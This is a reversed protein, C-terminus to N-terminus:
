IARVQARINRRTIMSAIGHGVAEGVTRAEDETPVLGSFNVNISGPGFTVSPGILDQLKSLPAVVEDQGGEGINALIGGPRAKVLAGGALRPIRPLDGPLFKDVEAIGVNIKDIARNLFGKIASVIDGAVDGIFNGVARFGNMFSKILNLGAQLFVPGLAVIRDPVSRIFEWIENFGNVVVAKAFALAETFINGVKPGTSSLAEVIRDPLSLLFNVIQNPLETIVFLIAGIATGLAILVADGLQRFIDAIQNPLGLLFVVLEGFKAPIEALWGGLAKVFAVVSRGLFELGAFVSKTSQVLFILINLTAGLSAGLAKVSLVMADIVTKGDASKFFNDLRITLDTLTKIFDHGEDQTGAFLTGLLGGVAKVLGLLEKFTTIADEIFKNLAGSRAAEAMFDGFRGVADLIVNGLREFIPLAKDAVELFGILFSVLNPGLRAVLRTTTEFLDNMFKIQEPLALFDLVKRFTEGFAGAVKTLGVTLNPILVLSLQQFGGILPTFFGTQVTKQLERLQPVLGAIEKAVVQASPGLKKMAADIKQLDGSALASVAEGFNQFAIIVPAVAAALVLLGAPILGVVGILQVLAAALAIIAPVLIIILAAFPSSSIAGGLQSGLQGLVKAAEGVVGSLAIFGRRMVGLDRDSGNALDELESRLDKFKSRIGRTSRGVNEDIHSFIKEASRDLSTFQKEIDKGLQDFNDTAKKTTKAFHADIKELDSEVDKNIKDMTKDVDRELRQLDKDRVIVDVYAVDIPQTM